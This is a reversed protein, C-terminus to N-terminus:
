GLPDVLVEEPRVAERVLKAELEDLGEAGEVLAAEEGREAEGAHPGVGLV